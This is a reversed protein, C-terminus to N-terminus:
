VPQLISTLTAACSRNRKIKRKKDWKVKRNDKEKTEGKETSKEDMYIYLRKTNSPCLAVKV